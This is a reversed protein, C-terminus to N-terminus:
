RGNRYQLPTTGTYRGFVEFFQSVSNYGVLFAVETVSRTTERLLQRAKEVRLRILYQYPSEGTTQKFQRAFHYVSMGALTALTELSIDEGLHAHLYETVQRLRYPPLAGKYEAVRYPLTAHRRLLQVALLQGAAEAFLRGGPNGAELEAKLSLAINEVLPDQVPFRDLLELHRYDAGAAEGIVKELHQRSVHLHVSAIPEAARNKWQWASPEEPPIFWISGKGVATRVTKGALKRQLWSDAGSYQVIILPDPVGPLELACVDPEQYTRVMLNRWGAPISSLLPKDATYAELAQTSTKAPIEPRQM